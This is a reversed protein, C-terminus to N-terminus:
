LDEILSTFRKILVVKNLHEEAFLKARCSAASCEIEELSLIKDLLLKPNGSKVWFGINNERVTKGALSDQESSVLVPKSSLFYTTLKSPISMEKVGPKENVLLIDSAQMLNALEDEPVPPIFSVHNLGVSQAKLKRLQNGAGVFVFRLKVQSDEALRAAQIVNELGQKVGLNGIHLVVKNKGLNYKNRTAQREETPAYVFQSWNAISEFSSKYKNSLGKSAVFGSHAMVVRDANSLMWNEIKSVVNSLNLFSSNTEKM